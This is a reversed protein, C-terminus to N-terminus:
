NMTIKKIYIEAPVPNYEPLFWFLPFHLIYFTFYPLRPLSASHFIAPIM